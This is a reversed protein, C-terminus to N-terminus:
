WFVLVLSVLQSGGSPQTSGPPAVAVASASVWTPSCSLKKLLLAVATSTLPSPTSAASVAGAPATAGVGTLRTNPPALPVSGTAHNEKM